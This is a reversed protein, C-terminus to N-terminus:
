VLSQMADEAAVNILDALEETKSLMPSHGSSIKIINSNAAKGFMEQFQPPPGQDNVCVVYTSPCYRYAERTLKTTQVAYSQDIIKSEWYNAEETPLDSYIIKAANKMRFRGDSKVDNNPSEGFVSLVSQGESLIFAACYFLHIVGGPLNLAARRAQTLEQLVAESGVLGGYSHMLVVVHKGDDEILRKLENQIATADTSLDKSSFDPEDQGTLTPLVPHVVSYGKAELATVLKGYVEPLQFSGQILLITPKVSLAAM